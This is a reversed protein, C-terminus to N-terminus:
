DPTADNADGETAAADTPVGDPTAEAPATDLLTLLQSGAFQSRALEEMKPAGADNDARLQRIKSILKAAEVESQEFVLDTKLTWGTTSGTYNVSAFQDKEEVMFVLSGPDIKKTSDLALLDPRQFIKGETYLTGIKLDAGKVIRNTKLWGEKGDSARVNSWEGQEGLLTVLEGRNFSAGPVYNSIQKDPNEPDPVKKDDSPTKRLSTLGVVYGETPAEPEEAGNGDTGAEVATPAPTPPPAPVVTEDGGLCGMLSPILAFFSFM